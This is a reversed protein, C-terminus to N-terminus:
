YSIKMEKKIKEKDERTKKIMTKLQQINQTAVKQKSISNEYPYPQKFLPFRPPSITPSITPSFFTFHSENNKCTFNAFAQKKLNNKHTQSLKRRQEPSNRSNNLSDTSASLHKKHDEIDLSLNTKTLKNNEKPNYQFTHRSNSSRYLQNSANNDKFGDTAAKEEKIQNMSKRFEQNENFCTKSYKEHIKSNENKLDIIKYEMQYIINNLREVESELINKKQILEHNDRELTANRLNLHYNDNKIINLEEVAKTEENELDEVKLAIQRYFHCSEMTEKLNSEAESRRRDIDTIIENMERNEKRLRELEGEYPINKEFSKGAVVSFQQAM